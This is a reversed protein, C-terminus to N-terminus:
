YDLLLFLFQKKYYRALLLYKQLSVNEGREIMDITAVSLTVNQAVEAINQKRAIRIDRLQPAIQRRILSSINNM